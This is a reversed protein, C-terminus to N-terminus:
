SQCFRIYNGKDFPLILFIRNIFTSSQQQISINPPKDIEEKLIRLKEKLEELDIENFQNEQTFQKIQKTIENLKNEINIIFINKYNIVTQRCQQATQKIKNISDEEWQDVQQILSREKTDKKHDNFIQRFQDHDNEIVNLDKKLEQLHKTLCDFCFKQSCGGCNFRRTVKKCSICQTTVNATAM